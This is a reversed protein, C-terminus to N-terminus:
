SGLLLGLLVVADDALLALPQRRQDVVDEVERADLRPALFVLEPLGVEDFQHAVREVGIAVLDLSCPKVNSCLM